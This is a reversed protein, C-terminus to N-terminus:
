KWLVYAMPAAGLPMGPHGPKAKQMDVALFRITNICQQDLQTAVTM